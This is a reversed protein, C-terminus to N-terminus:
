VLKREKVGAEEKECWSGGEARGNKWQRYKESVGRCFCKEM